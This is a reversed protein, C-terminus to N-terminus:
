HLDYKQKMFRDEYLQHNGDGWKEYIYEVALEKYKPEQRISIVRM